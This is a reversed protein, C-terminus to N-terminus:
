MMLGKESECDISVRTLEISWALCAMVVYIFCPGGNGVILELSALNLCRLCCPFFCLAFGSWTEM